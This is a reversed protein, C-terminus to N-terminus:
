PQPPGATIVDAVRERQHENKSYLLVLVNDNEILTTESKMSIPRTQPIFRSTDLAAAAAHRSSADAFLYYALGANGITLTIPQVPLKPLDGVHEASIQPALGAQDLKIRVTCESWHGTRQCMPTTAGARTAVSAVTAAASDNRGPKGRGCGGCVVLVCGVLVGRFTVVM